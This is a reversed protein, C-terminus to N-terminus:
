PAETWCRKKSAAGGSENHSSSLHCFAIKQKAPLEQNRRVGTSGKTMPLVYIKALVM